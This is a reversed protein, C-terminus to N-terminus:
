RRFRLSRWTGVVSNSALYETHMQTQRTTPEWRTGPRHSFGFDSFDGIGYEAAEDGHGPLLDYWTLQREMLEVLDDGNGTSFLM